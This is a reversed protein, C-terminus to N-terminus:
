SGLQSLIYSIQDGITTATINTGVELTTGSAINATAKYLQNNVILFDDINYNKSAVMESEGTAIMSETEAQNEEIQKNVFLKTDARYTMDISGTDAWIHNEGLLTQMQSPTLQVTIPTALEYCIQLNNEGLWLKFEALTLTDTVGAYIYRLQSKNQVNASLASYTIASYSASQAVPIAINSSMPPIASSITYKMPLSVLIAAYQRSSSYFNWNEDESGDFTLSVKDVTMEGTLVDLTGGYRTGDLDITVSTGDYPEFATATSGLELQPTGAIIEQASIATSGDPVRRATIRIYQANENSIFISKVTQGSFSADGNTIRNGLWNKDKDFYNYNIWGFGATGNQDISMTYVVNPKISIFPSTIRTTATNSWNSNEYQGPTWELLPCLNKGTRTVTASTHGSIPCINSYPIWSDPIDTKLALMPACTGNITIGAANAYIRLADFTEDSTPTWSTSERNVSTFTYSHINTETTTRRLYLAVNNNQFSNGVYFNYTDSSPFTQMASFPVDITVTNTSTGSITMVGNKAVVTIGNSSYTGDIVSPFKNKSGGGPWPNDYGHLDQVPEISVSLATVPASSGDTFSAISGSAFNFIVPAKDNLEEDLIEDLNEWEGNKRAYLIDDDSVDDKSSMSGLTPKGTLESYDISDQYAMRGAGTRLEITCDGTDGWVHNEGILTQMQAPTLLITQPSALEYVFQTPHNDLWTKLSAVTYEVETKSIVIYIYGGTQVMRGATDSPIKGSFRNSFATYNVASPLSSLSMNLQFVNCNTGQSSLGYTLDSTADFGYKTVTLMGTTVDLTGGYRTGDLDITVSTGQYPEFTSEPSIPETSIMPNTIVFVANSCKQGQVYMKSILTDTALTCKLTALTCKLIFHQYTASPTPVSVNTREIGDNASTLLNITNILGTGSTLKIDLAFYYTVGAKLLVPQNLVLRAVNLYGTGTRETSTFVGGSVSGTAMENSVIKDSLNKGTRTVMASSWGTIPRVNDPSPDGTGAQVPNIGVILNKIANDVEADFTVISGSLTTTGKKDFKGDLLEDTEHKTYINDFRSDVDTSNAKLAIEAEITTVAVNSGVILNTGSPINTVAKYLDDGVAILAGANYNRTAYMSVETSSLMSPYNPKNTIQTNYDATDQNALDGLSDINAKKDLKENVQNKTYVNDKDAKTNLYGDVENKTYVDDSDAKESLASDVESKSYVNDGLEELATKNAKKNFENMLDTQDSITGTINGWESSDHQMEGMISVVEVDDGTWAGAAHTDTFKYLEGQYIVYDGVNYSKLLSFEEAVVSALSEKTVFVNGSMIENIVQNTQNIDDSGFYSEEVNEYETVDTFSVTGDPNKILYYKRMGEWKVDKFNTPLNEWM